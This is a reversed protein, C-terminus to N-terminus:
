KAPEEPAAEEVEVPTHTVTVKPFLNMKNYNYYIPPDPQFDFKQGAPLTGVVTNWTHYVDGDGNVLDLRISVNQVPQGGQNVIVTSARIEGVFAATATTTDSFPTDLVKIPSDPNNGDTEVLGQANLAVQKGQANAKSTDASTASAAAGWKGPVNMRAVPAILDATGLTSSTRYSLGALRAFSSVSMSAQGNKNAVPVVGQAGVVSLSYEGAPLAPGGGPAKTVTVNSGNVKWSYGLSKLLPAVPAFVDSSQTVTPASFEQNNVWLQLGAADVGVFPVFLLAAAVFGALSRAM